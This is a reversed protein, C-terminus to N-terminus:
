VVGKSVMMAYYLFIIVLTFIAFGINTSQYVFIAKENLCQIKLDDPLYAKVIKLSIFNSTGNCLMLIIWAAIILISRYSPNYAYLYFLQVLLLIIPIFLILTLLLGMFLAKLDISKKIKLEYYKKNDIKGQKRINM